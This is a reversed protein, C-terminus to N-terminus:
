LVHKLTYVENLQISPLYKKIKATFVAPQYVSIAFNDGDKQYSEPNCSYTLIPNQIIQSYQLILSPLQGASRIITHLIHLSFPINRFLIFYVNQIERIMLGTEPLEIIGSSSWCIFSERSTIWEM